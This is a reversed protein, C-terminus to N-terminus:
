ENPTRYVPGTAPVPDITITFSTGTSNCGNANSVFITGSYTGVVVGAAIPLTIPSAPLATSNVNVLGATQAAANWSITYNTSGIPCNTVATYV